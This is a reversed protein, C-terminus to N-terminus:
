SVRADFSFPAPPTGAGSLHSANLGGGWDRRSAKANAKAEEFAEVVVVVCM